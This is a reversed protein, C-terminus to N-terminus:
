HLHSSKAEGEWANLGLGYPRGASEDLSFSKSLKKKIILHNLCNYTQTQGEVDLRLRSSEKNSSFSM